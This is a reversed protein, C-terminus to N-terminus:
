VRPQTGHNSTERTHQEEKEWVNYTSPSKPDARAYAGPPAYNGSIGYQSLRHQQHRLQWPAAVVPEEVPTKDTIQHLWHHWEPPVQSADFDRKAYIVFRQRGPTYSLNEYYQNGANDVGKLDGDLAEKTQMM